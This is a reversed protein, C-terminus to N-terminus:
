WSYPNRCARNLNSQIIVGFTSIQLPPPSAQKKFYPSLAAVAIWDILNGGASTLKNLAQVVVKM